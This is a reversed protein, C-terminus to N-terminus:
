LHDPIQPSQPNHKQTNRGTFEDFKIMTNM